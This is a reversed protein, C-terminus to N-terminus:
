WMVLQQQTLAPQIYRLRSQAFCPQNPRPFTAAAAPLKSAPPIAQLSAACCVTVAHCGQVVSWMGASAAGPQLM